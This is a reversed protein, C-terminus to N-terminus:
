SSPRRQLKLLWAHRQNESLVVTGLLNGDAGQFFVHRETGVDGVFISCHREALSTVWRVAIDGIRRPSDGVPADSLGSILRDVVIRATDAGLVDMREDRTLEVQCWGQANTRLSLVASPVQLELVDEVM